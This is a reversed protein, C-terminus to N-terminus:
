KVLEQTENFIDKWPSYKTAYQITNKITFHNPSIKNLHNWQIPVSVPANPRARLSFASVCTSGKENRLYDIFIKGARDKKRISTTFIDPYTKECVVAVNHSFDKYSKWNKTKSFPVVIHYGKGGSTKLYTNLNLKSLIDKLKLVADRLKKLDVDNAPDLDFIMLDPKNISNVKSGWTHFELTGMQAQTIIDKETKIYFYEENEIKKVNVFDKETTPHKKFFCEDNITGHCRIACMIRDKVFPLMFKSVTKYYKIVDIKKIKENPYVIKDPNTIKVGDIKTEM